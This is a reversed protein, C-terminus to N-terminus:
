SFCKKAITSTQGVQEEQFVYCGDSSVSSRAQQQQTGKVTYEGVRLLYYFAILCLDDVARVRESAGPQLGCKVLYEPVDSEVPM